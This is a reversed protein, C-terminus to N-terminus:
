RDRPENASQLAGITFNAIGVFLWLIAAAFAVIGVDTWSVGDVSVMALLALPVLTAIVRLWWLIRTMIRAAARSSISREMVAERM